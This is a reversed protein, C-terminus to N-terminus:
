VIEFDSYKLKAHNELVAILHASDANGSGDADYYLEGKGRTYLLHTDTGFTKGSKFSAASGVGDFVAESLAITDTGSQFDTIRDKGALTEFFFTDKGGGGTLTDSGRGGDLFDAGALGKIKDNGGLGHIRDAGSTGALVNAKGNAGYTDFQHSLHDISLSGDGGYIEAGLEYGTVFNKESILNKDALWHLIALVDIKTELIDVEPVLAIYQWVNDTEGSPDPFGERRIVDFKVGNQTYEGFIADTGASGNDHAWIMLETTITSANGKATNTLWLDYAVNFNTTDSGAISLDHTIDFERLDSIRAVLSYTGANLVEEESDIDSPKYDWPKYGVVVEPYALVHDTVIGWNWNFTIGSTLDTEDAITITQSYDQTQRWDKGWVNNVVNVDGLYYNAWDASLTEAM